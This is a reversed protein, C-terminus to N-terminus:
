RSDRRRACARYSTSPRSARPREARLWAIDRRRAGCRRRAGPAATFRAATAGHTSMAAESHAQPVRRAWRGVREVRPYRHPASARRRRGSSRTRRKTRPRIASRGARYPLDRRIERARHEGVGRGLLAREVRDERREVREGRAVAHADVALARRERPARMAVVHVRVELEVGVREQMRRERGRVELTYLAVRDVVELVRQAIRGVLLEALRGELLERQAARAVRM